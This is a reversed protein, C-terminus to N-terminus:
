HSGNAEKHDLGITMKMLDSNSYVHACRRVLDYPMKVGNPLVYFKIATTDPVHGMLYQYSIHKPEVEPNSLLKQSFTKRFSHFVSHGDTMIWAKELARLMQKRYLIDFRTTSLPDHFIITHSGKANDRIHDIVDKRCIAWYEQGKSKVPFTLVDPYGDIKSISEWRIDRAGSVRM